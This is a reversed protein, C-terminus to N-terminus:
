YAGKTSIRAESAEGSGKEEVEERLLQEGVQTEEESLEIRPSM